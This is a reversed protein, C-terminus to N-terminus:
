GRGWGQGCGRRRVGVVDGFSGEKVIPVNCQDGSFKEDMGEYGGSGVEVADERSRL